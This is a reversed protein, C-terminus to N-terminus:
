AGVVGTKYKRLLDYASKFMPGIVDHYKGGPGFNRSHAQVSVSGGGTRAGIFNLVKAGAMMEIAAKIDAPPDSFGYSYTVSINRDGRPFVAGEYTLFIIGKQGDLEVEQYLVNAIGPHRIYEVKVLEAIHRRHLILSNEGTGSYRETVTKVETLSQRITTEVFPVVERTITNNIWQDSLVEETIGYGELYARVDVATPLAMM